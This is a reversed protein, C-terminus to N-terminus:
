RLVLTTCQPRHRFHRTRVWVAHVRLIFPHFLQKPQASSTPNPDFASFSL